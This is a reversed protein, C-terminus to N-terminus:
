RALPTRGRDRRPNQPRAACVPERVLAKVAANLGGGIISLGQRMGRTVVAGVRPSEKGAARASTKTNLARELRATEAADGRQQQRDAVIERAAMVSQVPKADMPALFKQVEAPYLGTTRQNIQHLNGREDIVVYAGTKATVTRGAKQAATLGDDAFDLSAAREKAQDM